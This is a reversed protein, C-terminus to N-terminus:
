RVKDNGLKSEYKCSVERKLESFKIKILKNKDQFIKRVKYCIWYNM